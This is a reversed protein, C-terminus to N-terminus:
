EDTGVEKVDAVDDPGDGSGRGDAVFAALMAAEDNTITAQNDETTM